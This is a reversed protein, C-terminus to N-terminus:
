QKQEAILLFVKSNAMTIALLKEASFVHEECYFDQGAIKNAGNDSYRKIIEKIEPNGYGLPCSSINSTFDLYHEGDIDEIYCGQGDKIVLPYIFTSNYTLKKMKNVVSFSRKRM